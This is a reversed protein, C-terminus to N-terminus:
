APRRRRGAAPWTEEAAAYRESIAEFRENPQSLTHFRNQRSLREPYELCEELSARFVAFQV